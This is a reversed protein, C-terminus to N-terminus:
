MNLTSLLFGLVLLSIHKFNDNFVGSRRWQRRHQSFSLFLVFYINLIDLRCHRFCLYLRWMSITKSPFQEEEEMVLIFCSVNQGPELCFFYVWLCIIAIMLPCRIPIWPWSLINWVTKTFLPTFFNACGSKERM